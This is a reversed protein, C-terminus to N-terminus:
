RPIKYIDDGPLVDKINNEWKKEKGDEITYEDLEIDVIGTSFNNVVSVETFAYISSGSIGLILGLCVLASCLGKKM